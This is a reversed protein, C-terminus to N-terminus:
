VDFQRKVAEIDVENKDPVPMITHCGNNTKLIFKAPLKSFDIDEVSQWVAYLKPLIVEGIRERVYDRVLYKDALRTWETTDYNFKMWNIKENLTQPNKWDIDYGVLAKHLENAIGEPHLHFRLWFKTKAYCSHISNPCIKRLFKKM